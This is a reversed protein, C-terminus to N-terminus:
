KELTEPPTLSGPAVWDIMPSYADIRAVHVGRRPALCTSGAVSDRNEQVKVLTPIQGRVGANRSSLMMGSFLLASFAGLETPEQAYPGPWGDPSKHRSDSVDREDAFVKYRKRENNPILM